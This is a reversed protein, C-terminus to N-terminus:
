QYHPLSLYKFQFNHIDFIIIGNSITTHTHMDGPNTTCMSIHLTIDILFTELYFSFEQISVKQCDVRPATSM